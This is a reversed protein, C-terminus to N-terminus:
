YVPHVPSGHQVYEQAGAQLAAEMVAREEVETIGSPVSILLRPKLLSFGSVKRLLERLLREAMEFDSVVGDRMPRIAALNVPTRGLMKQAEAGVSLVRGSVRDVAIVAPERLVIGKDRVCIRVTSTGLDIGIDKGFLM